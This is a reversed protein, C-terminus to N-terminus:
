IQMQMVQQLAESLRNRIELFLRFSLDANAVALMVGHLNDTQGMGLDKVAQDAAIQQANVKSLLNDILSGFGAGGTKEPLAPQQVTTAPGVGSWQLPNIV